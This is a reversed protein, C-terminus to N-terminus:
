AKKGAAIDNSVDENFKMEKKLTNMFDLMSPILIIAGSFGIM